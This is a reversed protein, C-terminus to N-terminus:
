TSQAKYLKYWRYYGAIAVITYILFLLATLNLDKYAYLRISVLDIVIWYIWNELVRQAVMFTAGISFVTTFADLYPLEQRTFVDFFFAFVITILLSISINILHQKLNWSRIFQDEKKNQNWKYWGWFAMFLYFLQLITELFYDSIFCLYVYISSSVAAFFWAAIKKRAILIVYILGSFVAIWEPFTTNLLEFGMQELQKMEM